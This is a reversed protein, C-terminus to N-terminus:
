ASMIISYNQPNDSICTITVEQVNRAGEELQSFSYDTIVVNNIGMYDNLITSYVEVSDKISCITNVQNVLDGPYFDAADGVLKAKITIDCDGDSIYEKITGDLGAVSTTIINRKQTVEVLAINLILQVNINKSYKLTVIDWVPLGFLSKDLNKLGEQQAQFAMEAQPTSFNSNFARNIIVQKAGQIAINRSANKIVNEAETQKQQKINFHTM